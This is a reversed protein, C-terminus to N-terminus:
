SGNTIESLRTYAYDNKKFGAFRLLDERQLQSSTNSDMGKRAEAWIKWIARQEQLFELHELMGRLVTIREGLRMGQLDPSVYMWAEALGATRLGGFGVPRGDVYGIFGPGAAENFACWQLAKDNNILEPFLSPVAQAKFEKSDLVGM